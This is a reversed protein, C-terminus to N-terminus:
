LYRPLPLEKTSDFAVKFEVFLNYTGNGRELTMELIQRMIFIQGITSKGPTLGCQYPGILENITPSLEILSKLLPLAGGVRRRQRAHKRGFMNPLSASAHVIELWKSTIEQITRM